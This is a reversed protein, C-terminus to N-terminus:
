KTRKGSNKEMEGKEPCPNRHHCHIRKSYSESVSHGCYEQKPRLPESLPWTLTKATMKPIGGRRACCNSCLHWRRSLKM